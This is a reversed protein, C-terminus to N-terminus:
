HVRFALAEADDGLGCGVVLARGGTGDVGERELWAALNPNVRMDAWPIVSADGGAERYLTEFWELPKGNSVADAALRRALARDIM